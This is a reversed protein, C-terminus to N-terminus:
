QSFDTISGAQLGEPIWALSNGFYERKDNYLWGSDTLVLSRNAQEVFKTTVPKSTPWASCAYASYFLAREFRLRPKGSYQYECFVAERASWEKEAFAAINQLVRRADASNHWEADLVLRFPIRVAEWGWGSNKGPLVHLGDNDDVGCWDPILGVGKEGEFSSGLSSLLHYTTNLLELWLKDGSVEAFIRFHAPSYYSPNQPYLDLDEPKQLIWPALYLRGTKTRFTELKLIDSLIVEANGRYLASLDQQDRWRRSALILALAYDIDADSAPMEDTISGDKWHWALLSDGTLTKRSLNQETWKRCREFTQQDDMWVARLMAYAQGESVADNQKPRTVRGDPLIFAQKYAKWTEELATGPQIERRSCSVSCISFSACVAMLAMTINSTKYGMM